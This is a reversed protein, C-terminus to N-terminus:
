KKGNEHKGKEKEAMLKAFTERLEIKDNKEDAKSWEKWCKADEKKDQAKTMYEPKM